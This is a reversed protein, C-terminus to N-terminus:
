AAHKLGPRSGNRRWAGPSIRRGCNVCKWEYADVDSSADYEEVMFGGCKTCTM